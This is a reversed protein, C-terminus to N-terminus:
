RKDDEASGHTNAFIHVYNSSTVYCIYNGCEGFYIAGFHFM